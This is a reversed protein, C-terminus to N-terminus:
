SHKRQSAHSLASVRLGVDGAPNWGGPPQADVVTVSLEPAGRALLAAAANGVMGGGVVVVDSDRRM